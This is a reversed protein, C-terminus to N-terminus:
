LSNFVCVNGGASADVSETGSAIQESSRKESSESSAITEANLFHRASNRIIHQCFSRLTERVDM